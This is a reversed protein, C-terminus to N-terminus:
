VDEGPSRDAGPPPEWGRTTWEKEGQELRDVRRQLATLDHSIRHIAKTFDAVFERSEGAGEAAYRHLSHLLDSLDHEVSQREEPQEM